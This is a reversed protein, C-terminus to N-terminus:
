FESLLSNDYVGIKLMCYNIFMRNKTYQNHSLCFKIFNKDKLNLLEKYNMYKDKYKLKCKWIKNLLYLFCRYCHLTDDLAEHKTKINEDTIIENVDINKNNKLVIEYLKELKIHPKNILSVGINGGYAMTDFININKLKNYLPFKHYRLALNKMLEVDFRANHAIIIDINKVDNYFDDLVLNILKGNKIQELTIHSIENVRFNRELEENLYNVYSNYTKTIKNIDTYNFLIYSIQELNVNNFDKYKKGNILKEGPLKDTETDFCMFM